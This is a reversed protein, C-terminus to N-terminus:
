PNSCSHRSEVKQMEVEFLFESWLGCTGPAACSGCAATVVADDSGYVLLSAVAVEDVRETVVNSWSSLVAAM